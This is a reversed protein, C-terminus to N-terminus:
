QTPPPQKNLLWQWNLMKSQKALPKAREARDRYSALKESLADNFMGKQAETVLADILAIANQRQDAKSSVIFNVPNVLRENRTGYGVTFNVGGRIRQLMRSKFQADKIPRDFSDFAELEAKAENLAKVVDEVMQQITVPQYSQKGVLLAEKNDHGFQAIIGNMNIINQM